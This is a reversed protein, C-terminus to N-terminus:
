VGWAEIQPGARFSERLSLTVSVRADGKEM